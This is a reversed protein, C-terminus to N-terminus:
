LNVFDADAGCAACREGSRGGFVLAIRIRKSM